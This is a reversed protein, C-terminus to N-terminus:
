EDPLRKAGTINLLIFVVASVLLGLDEKIGLKFAATTGIAAWLLPIIYTIVSVRKTTCLLVGFTFITTPCPLGFTPSSPYIHGQTYGLLPYIVLAFLIFIFGTIGMADPRFHFNLKSKVLGFYLFLLGQLIFAAAFVKAAPNIDAFFRIHYALGMWLWFFALIGSITRGSWSLKTLLLFISLLALIYFVIQLPWIALNYDKIVDMFQQPTFPFKM